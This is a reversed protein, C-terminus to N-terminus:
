SLHLYHRYSRGIDIVSANKNLSVVNTQLSFPDYVVDTQRLWTDFESWFLAKERHSEQEKLLKRYFLPPSEVSFVLAWHHEDLDMCHIKQLQNLPVQLMYRSVRDYAGAVSHTKAMTGTEDIFKVSFDITIRSRLLDVTFKLKNSPFQGVTPLVMARHMQMMTTEDYMFGFDVAVPTLSMREPYWIQKRIPSQIQFRRRAPELEVKITSSGGGDSSTIVVLSKWFPRITPPQIFRIRGGGDKNGQRNEYIEISIITGEHQFRMWLDWTTINKPLNRLRVCIELWNQWAEKARIIPGDFRLPSPGYITNGNPNLAQM